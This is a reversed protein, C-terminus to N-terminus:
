LITKGLASQALEAALIGTMNQTDLVPNVEVLDIRWSKRATTSCKWRWTRRAIASAAGCRRAPAPRTRPIWWTSTSRCTFAPPATARAPPHAEDVVDRMGREDLDRM